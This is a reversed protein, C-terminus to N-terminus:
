NKIAEASTTTLRKPALSQEPVGNPDATSGTEFLLAHKEFLTRLKFASNVHLESEISTPIQVPLWHLPVHVEIVKEFQM